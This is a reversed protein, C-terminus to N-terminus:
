RADGQRLVVRRFVAHEYALGDALSKGATNRIIDTQMLLGHRPLAALEAAVAEARALATGDDVLEALM